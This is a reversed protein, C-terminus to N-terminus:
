SYLIMNIITIGDVFDDGDDDDANIAGFKSYDM